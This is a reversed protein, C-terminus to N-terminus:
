DTGADGEGATCGPTTSVVPLPAYGPGWECSLGVPDGDCGCVVPGDDQCTFDEMVCVGQASCGADVPFGCLEEGGCDTSQTCASGVPAGAEEGTGSGAIPQPHTACAALALPLSLAGYLFWRSTM